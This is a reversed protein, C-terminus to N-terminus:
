RGVHEVRFSGIAAHIQSECWLLPHLEERLHALHQRADLANELADSGLAAVPDRRGSVQRAGPHRAGGRVRHALLQRLGKAVDAARRMQRELFQGDTGLGVLHVAQGAEGRFQHVLADGTM